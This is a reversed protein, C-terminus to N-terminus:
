QAILFKYLLFSIISCFTLFNTQRSASVFNFSDNTFKWGSIISTAQPLVVSPMHHHYGSLINSNQQQFLLSQYIGVNSTTSLGVQSASASLYGTTPCNVGSQLGNLHSEGSSYIGAIPGATTIGGMGNSTLHIQDVPPAGGGGGGGSLVSASAAIQQHNALLMNHHADPLSTVFYNVHKYQFLLIYYHSVTSCRQQVSTSVPFLAKRHTPVSLGAGTPTMRTSSHWWKAENLALKMRM